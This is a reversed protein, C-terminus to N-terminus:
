INYKKTQSYRLIVKEWVLVRRTWSRNSQRSLLTRELTPAWGNSAITNAFCYIWGLRDVHASSLLGVVTKPYGLDSELIRSLFTTEPMTRFLEPIPWFLFAFDLWMTQVRYEKVYSGSSKDTTTWYIYLCLHTHCTFTYRKTETSWLRHYRKLGRLDYSIEIHTKLVM